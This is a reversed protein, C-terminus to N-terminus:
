TLTNHFWGSPLNVGSTFADMVMLAARDELEAYTLTEGTDAMIVAPYKGTHGTHDHPTWNETDMITRDNIMVM